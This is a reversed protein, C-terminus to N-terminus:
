SLLNPERQLDGLEFFHFVLGNYFATNIYRGISYPEIEHGTGAMRIKRIKSESKTNVWAWLCWGTGEQYNCHLIMSEKPLDIEIVDNPIIPYKYVTKM